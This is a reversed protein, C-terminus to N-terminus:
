QERVLFPDDREEFNGRYGQVANKAMQTSQKLAKQLMKEEDQEDKPSPILELVKRSSLAM